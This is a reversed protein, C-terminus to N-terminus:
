GRVPSDSNDCIGGIQAAFERKDSVHDVNFILDYLPMSNNSVGTVAVHDVGCELM